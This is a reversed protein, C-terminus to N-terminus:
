PAPATAPETAPAADPAPAPDPAPAAADPAPTADAADCTDATTMPTNAQVVCPDSAQLKNAALDGAGATFAAGAFFLLVLTSSLAFKRRKRVRELPFDWPENTPDLDPEEFFDTRPMGLETQRSDPASATIPANADPDAAARVQSMSWRDRVVRARGGYLHVARRRM